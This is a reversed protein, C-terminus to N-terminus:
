KKVNWVKLLRWINQDVTKWDKLSEYSMRWAIRVNPYLPTEVETTVVIQDTLNKNIKMLFESNYPDSAHGLCHYSIDSDLNISYCELDFKKFSNEYKIFKHSTLYNIWERPTQKYKFYIPDLTSFNQIYVKVQDQYNKDYFNNIKINKVNNLLLNFRMPHQFDSVKEIKDNDNLIKVKPMFDIPYQGLFPDTLVIGQEINKKNGVVTKITLDSSIGWIVLDGQKSIDKYYEIDSEESLPKSRSETSDTCGCIAICHILILIKIYNM